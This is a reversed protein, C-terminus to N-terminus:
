DLFIPLVKHLESASIAGNGVFSEVFKKTLPNKFSKVILPFMEEAEKRRALIMNIHNEAFFTINNVYVFNFAFVNGYGRNVLIAPQSIPKKHFDKIYQKKEKKTDKLNNLTLTCNTINSNYILPVGGKDVLKEKQQNWVVEGTKVDFGLEDLTKTNNVLEALDDAQPSIYINGSRQFIFKHLPDVKKQLVLLMTDQETQYYKVDLEKVFHITCNQYIYKRMPEYYSCNFLSTPLVFALYGDKELHEEICKYLFAVYINPRGVMCEKNKEKILFYPPNGVILDFTNSSSYTLFNQCVLEMGDTEKSSKFLTENLEIGTIKSYPYRTKIDFLFEGSGFSPELIKKPNVNCKNLVDFLLDRAKKPTFFIGEKKRTERKIKKNMELSNQRFSGEADRITEVIPIEQLIQKVTKSAKCPRKRKNHREYQTKSSFDKLCISCTYETKM